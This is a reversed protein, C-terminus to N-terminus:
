DLMCFVITGFAQRICKIWGLSLIPGHIFSCIDQRHLQIVGGLNGDALQSPEGERGPVIKIKTACHVTQVGPYCPMQSTILAQVPM